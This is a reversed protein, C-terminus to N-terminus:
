RDEVAAPAEAAQLAARLDACGPCFCHSGTSRMTPTVHRALQAELAARLRTNEAVLAAHSNVAALATELFTRALPQHNELEAFALCRACTRWAHFWGRPDDNEPCKSLLLTLFRATDAAIATPTWPTTM